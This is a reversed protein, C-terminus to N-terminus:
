PHCVVRGYNISLVSWANLGLRGVEGARGGGGGLVGELFLFSYFNAVVKLEQSLLSGSPCASLLYHSLIDSGNLSHPGLLSVAKREHGGLLPVGVDEAFLLLLHM